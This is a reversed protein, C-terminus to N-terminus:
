SQEKPADASQEPAAPKFKELESKTSGLEELTLKAFKQLDGYLEIQEFITAILQNKSQQKLYAKMDKYAQAAQHEQQKIERAESSKM